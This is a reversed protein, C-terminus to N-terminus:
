WWGWSLYAYESSFGDVAALHYENYNDLCNTNNKEGM